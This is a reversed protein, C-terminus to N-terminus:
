TMIAALRNDFALPHKAIQKLTDNKLLHVRGTGHTVLCTGQPAACLGCVDKSRLAGTQARKADFVITKHQKPLCLHGTDMSTDIKQHM